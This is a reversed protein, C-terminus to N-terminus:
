EEKNLQSDTDEVQSIFEKGHQQLKTNIANFQEELQGKTARDWGRSLLVKPHSFEVM